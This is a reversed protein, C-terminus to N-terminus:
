KMEKAVDAILAVSEQPTLALTLVHQFMNSYRRLDRPKELYINGASGSDVYVVNPESPDPFDVLVFPGDTAPHVGRSFPVIQITVNPQKAKELLHGLQERMISSSGVVRRLVGEDMIAWYNLPEPTQTLREQRRQRLEVHREINEPIDTVRIAQLAARTYDPTQLLGEIMRNEHVRLGAADSELGIYAEFDPPMVDDFVEWWGKQQAEKALTILRERDAEDDVGYLDLLLRVDKLLAVAKGTEIRSVTSPAREIHRAVEDIMKGVSERRSRLERGLKRRRTTPSRGVTM